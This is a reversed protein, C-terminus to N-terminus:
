TAALMTMEQRPSCRHFVLFYSWIMQPPSGEEVDPLRRQFLNELVLLTSFSLISKFALGNSKTPPRILNDHYVVVQSQRPCTRLFPFTKLVEDGKNVAWRDLTDRQHRYEYVPVSFGCSDSIRTVDVHIVSRTGPNAPFHGALEDFRPNTPTIVTLTYAKPAARAAAATSRRM